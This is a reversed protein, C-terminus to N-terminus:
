YQLGQFQLGLSLVFLSLSLLSQLVLSKWPASFSLSIKKIEPPVPLTKLYLVWFYFPAPLNCCGNLICDLAVTDDIVLFLLSCEPDNNWSPLYFQIWCPAPTFNCSARQRRVSVTSWNQWRGGGRGEELWYSKKDTWVIGVGTHWSNYQVNWNSYQM